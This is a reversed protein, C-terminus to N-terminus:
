ELWFGSSGRSSSSCSRSNCGSCSWSWRRMRNIKRSATSGKSWTTNGRSM